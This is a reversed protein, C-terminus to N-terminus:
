KIRDKIKKIAQNYSSELADYLDCSKDFILVLMNSFDDRYCHCTIEFLHDKIKDFIIDCGLITVELRKNSDPMISWNVGKRLCIDIVEKADM